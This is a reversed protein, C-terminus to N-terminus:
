LCVLVAAANMGNGKEIKEPMGQKKLLLSSFSVFIPDWSTKAGPTTNRRIYPREHLVTFPYFHNSNSECFVKISVVFFCPLVLELFSRLLASWWSKIGSHWGPQKGQAIVTFNSFSLPPIIFTAHNGCFCNLLVKKCYKYKKFSKTLSSLFCCAM